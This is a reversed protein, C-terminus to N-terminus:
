HSSAQTVDYYSKSFTVAKARAPTYSIENIDFDFKKPGPQYSNNFPEVVWVVKAPAFGMQKAIAYAVASEYGKGNSPNNSEFWPSYAPSDTAVTLVGSKYLYRGVNADQQM